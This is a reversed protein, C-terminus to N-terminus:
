VRGWRGGGEGGVEGGGQREGGARGGPWGVLSGGSGVPHWDSAYREEGEEEEEEKSQLSPVLDGVWADSFM